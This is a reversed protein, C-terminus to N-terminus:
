PWPCDDGVYGSESQAGHRRIARLRVLDALLPVAVGCARAAAFEVFPLLHECGRSTIPIDPPLTIQQYSLLIVGLCGKTAASRLGVEAAEPLVAPGDPPCTDDHWFAYARQASVAGGPTAPRADAWAQLRAAGIAHNRRRTYACALEEVTLCQMSGDPVRFRSPVPVDLKSLAARLKKQGGVEGVPPPIEM